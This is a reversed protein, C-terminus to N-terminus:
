ISAPARRATRAPSTKTCRSARTKRSTPGRSISATRASARSSFFQSRTGGQVVPSDRVPQDPLGQAPRPLLLEQARLDVANRSRDAGVALGFESPANSPAGTSSRCPAPCAGPRGASAQANPAAGFHAHIHRQLDELHTSLQSHTELGIVVEYGRILRSTDMNLARGPSKQHWDTAQSSHMPRTCCAHAEDFYNGILQLGVPM